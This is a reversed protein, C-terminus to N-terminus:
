TNSESLIWIALGSFALMVFLMWYQSRVALRARDYTALAKDHALTLGAAHGTVVFAVQFYWVLSAGLFYSVTADATGFFDSGHGLPDSALASIPQGNYLLYTFYHASVYALAIPVLTPVFNRAVQERTFGGGVARAGIVGILYLGYVFAVALVLGIFTTVWLAHEPTLGLDRFFTAIDPAVASWQPGEAFGDFSVSGIMVALLAVTGPM